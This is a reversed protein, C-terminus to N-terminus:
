IVAQIGKRELYTELPISQQYEVEICNSTTKTQKNTQDTKILFAISYSEKIQISNVLIM